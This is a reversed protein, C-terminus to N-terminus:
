NEQAKVTLTAKVGDRFEELQEVSLACRAGVECFEGTVACRVRRGFPFVRVVVSPPCTGCEWPRQM